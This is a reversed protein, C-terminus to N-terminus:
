QGSMERAAAMMEDADSLSSQAMARAAIPASPGLMPEDNLRKCSICLRTSPVAALRAPSIDTECIACTM